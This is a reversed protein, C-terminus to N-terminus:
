LSGFLVRVAAGYAQMAKVEEVPRAAMWTM